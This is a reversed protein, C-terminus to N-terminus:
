MLSPHTEERRFRNNIQKRRANMAENGERGSKRKHHETCLAQLNDPHHNDGAIIHDVLDLEGGILSEGGPFVVAHSAVRGLELFFDAAGEGIEALGQKGTNGIDQLERKVADGGVTQVRVNVRRESM